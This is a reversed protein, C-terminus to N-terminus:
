RVDYIRCYWGRDHGSNTGLHQLLLIKRGVDSNLLVATYYEPRWGGHKQLFQLDRKHLTTHVTRIKLNTYTSIGVRAFGGSSALEGVLSEASASPPAQIPVFSYITKQYPITEMLSDIPDTPARNCAVFAVLCIACGYRM